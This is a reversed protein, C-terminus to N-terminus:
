AVLLRLGAAFLIAALGLRIARPSMWKLGMTTGIAAGALSGIAYAPTAAAVPQGAALVAALAVASNALIFPASIGVLQRPTAFGGLLLLPALFVGGGVGTIGSLLGVGGGIAAALVPPVPRRGEERRRLPRATLMAAAILVCGVSTGFV